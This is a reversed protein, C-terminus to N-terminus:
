TNKAVYYDKEKLKFTYWTIASYIALVIFMMPIVTAKHQSPVAGSILTDIISVTSIGLFISFLWKAVEKRLFLFIAAAMSLFQFGFARIYYIFSTSRDIGDPIAATGIAITYFKYIALFGAIMFWIFIVWIWVPRKSDVNM